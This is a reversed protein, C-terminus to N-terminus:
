FVTFGSRRPSVEIILTKTTRCCFRLEHIAIKTLHVVLFFDVQNFLEHDLSVMFDLGVHETINVLTEFIFLSFSQLLKQVMGVDM